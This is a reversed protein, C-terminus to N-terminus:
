LNDAENQHTKNIGSRRLFIFRKQVTFKAVFSCLLTILLAPEYRITLHLLLLFFSYEGIRFLASTALFIFFQRGWPDESRFVFTRISVFNFAFACILGIAVAFREGIGALEHLAVPLGFSIISSVVTAVAYRRVHETRSLMAMWKAHLSVSNEV